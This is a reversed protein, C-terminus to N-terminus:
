ERDVLLTRCYWNGTQQDKKRKVFAIRKVRYQKNIAVCEIKFFHSSYKISRDLQAMEQETLEIVRKYWDNDLPNLFIDNQENKQGRYEVLDQALQDLGEPLIAAIIDARATNINIKGEYRYGNNPLKDDDIGYVTFINKIELNQGDPDKIENDKRGFIGRSIGKIQLLEDIHNLPGNSCAYPPNLTQYYDSEAGSLGSTADNDKSDLWDTVSNIISEADLDDINQSKSFSLRLFNEWIKRQDFNVEHGPFRKILANVQIKSLEDTINLTLSWDGTEISKAALSLKESDAWDEQISDITTTQADQILFLKALNIGSLAFQEAQIREKESLTDMTADGTIRVLHLTAPVLVAIIALTIVLAFGKNNRIM